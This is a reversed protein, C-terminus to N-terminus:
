QPAATLLCRCGLHAPPHHQGTPFVEGRPTPGALANDDCDPCASEDDVIWRLATGERQSVFGGREHAAILYHMALREIKSVKWDRYVASIRDALAAPDLEDAAGSSLVQDLRARIAGALDDALQSALDDIEVAVAGFPSTSAGAQLAEGLFPITVSRYPMAQDAPNALVATAANVARGTRLRDLSSNQEDQLVRKLRRTLQAALPEIVVDRRQLLVEDTDSVVPVDVITTGPEEGEPHGIRDGDTTALVHRAHATSAERDARIRAFLDEIRPRIEDRALPELEVVVEVSDDPIPKHLDIAEVQDAAAPAEIAVEALEVITDDSDLSQEAEVPVVEPEPELQPEAALEPEPEPAAPATPAATAPRPRGLIRVGESSSERGIMPPPPTPAPDPTRNRRLIRLASSRREEAPKTRSAADATSPEREGPSPPTVPSPNATAPPTPARTTAAEPEVNRGASDSEGIPANPAALRPRAGPAEGIMVSRSRAAPVSPRAARPVADNAEQETKDTKENTSTVLAPPAAPGAGDGSEFRNTMEDIGRRAVKLTDLLRDRGVRLQELQAQASRKRKALDALMRERAAQAESVMERGRDKAAEITAEAEERAKVRISAAEREAEAIKRVATSQAEESRAKLSDTATARIKAAEARADDLVRATEATAAAGLVEVRGRAERLIQDAEAQAQELLQRAGEQAAEVVQVPSDGADSAAPMADDTARRLSAELGHLRRLEDAVRGLFARVEVPDFGRFATPFSRDAVEEPALPAEAAPALGDDSM